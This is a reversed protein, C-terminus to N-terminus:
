PYTFFHNFGIGTWPQISLAKATAALADTDKCVLVSGRQLLTYKASKALQESPGVKGDWRNLRGYKKVEAHTRIHRFDITETVAAVAHQWIEDPAWADSTLVLRPEAPKQNTYFMKAPPLIEELSQTTQKVCIHFVSKEAGMPLTFNDLKTLDVGEAFEALVCFAWGRELRYLQQKFLGPGTAQPRQVEKKPIGPRVLVKFIDDSEVVVGNTSVWGDALGKKPTFGEWRHANQWTTTPDTENRPEGTDFLVWENPLEASLAFPQHVSSGEHQDIAQRLFYDNGNTLFLPSLSLLDGYDNLRPDDPTFSNPGREFGRKLLLHRLTGCLTTQQPLANGKSFYNAGDGNGHTLEGGFLYPDLPTFTVLAKKSM